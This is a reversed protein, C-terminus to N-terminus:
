GRRRTRVRLVVSALGISLMAVATGAMPTISTGTRALEPSTPGPRHAHSPASESPEPCSDPEWEIVSEGNGSRVGTSLQAGAPGLSSGGGGGGGGDGSDAAGGGGGGFLGGGGGGGADLNSNKTSAGTGGQGASGDGGADSSGLSGLGGTGGRGGSAGGKATSGTADGGSTGTLGGGGGAGASPFGGGGGGGAAIVLARASDAITTSGGGGGGGWGGNGGPGGGGFGASGPVNTAGNGGQGGVTVSLQEGPTVAVTAAQVQAGLGGVPGDRGVGGSAGSATISLQCVEAPVTFEQAGGTYTFTRTDTQASAPPALVCVAAIALGGAPAAAAARYRNALIGRGAPARVLDPLSSAPPAVPIGAAPRNARMRM